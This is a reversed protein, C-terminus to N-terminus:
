SPEGETCLLRQYRKGESKLDDDLNLVAKINYIRSGLVLRRSATTTTDALTSQYRVLAKADVRSQLQSNVYIERGGTPEVKAWLTLTDAWTETRGGYADDTATATQIVVRTKAESAFDFGLGCSCSVM